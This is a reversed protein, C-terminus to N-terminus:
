AKKAGVEPLLSMVNKVTEGLNNRKFTRTLYEVLEDVGAHENLYAEDIESLVSVVKVVEDLALECASILYAHFNEQPAAIVQLILGPLTDVTEFLIRWRNPTLKNISVRKDGLYMEFDNTKFRFPIM